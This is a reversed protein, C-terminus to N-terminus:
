KINKLRDKIDNYRDISIRNEKLLKEIFLSFQEKTNNGKGYLKHFEKHIEINLTIGNNINTRNEKDWNYGNIHHVVIDGSSEKGTIQCTYNDRSFCDQIFDKYKPNRYRYSSYIRDEESLNPNYFHNNEGRFKNYGCKKCHNGLLVREPITKWLEGCSCRFLIEKANGKYEELPIVDDINKNKLEQLFQENTKLFIKSKEESICKKCCKRGQLLRKPTSECVENHITCKCKIKTSNNIYPELPLVNSNVEKLKEIFEENTRRTTKGM